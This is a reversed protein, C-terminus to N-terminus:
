NFELDHEFYLPTQPDLARDKDTTYFCGGPKHCIDSNKCPSKDPDCIYIPDPKIGDVFKYINDM